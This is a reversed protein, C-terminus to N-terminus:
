RRRRRRLGRGRADHRLGLEKSRARWSRLCGVCLVVSLILDVIIVLALRQMLEVAWSHVFVGYYANTFDYWVYMGFGGVSHRIQPIPDSGCIADVDSMNFDPEEIASRAGDDCALWMGQAYRYFGWSLFRESRIQGKAFMPLYETVNTSHDAIMNTLLRPPLFGGFMFAHAFTEYEYGSMSLGGSLDPFASPGYNAYDGLIDREVPPYEPQALGLASFVEDTLLEIWAAETRPKGSAALAMAGAVTLHWPGYQFSEGPSFPFTDGALQRVCTDWDPQTSREDSPPRACGGTFGWGEPDDRAFGATFGLLHELTVKSGNGATPWFDFYDSPKADLSLIGRAILRYICTAAIHKSESAIQYRTEFDIKGNVKEWRRGSKDGIILGGHHEASDFASEVETWDDTALAQVIKGQLAIRHENGPLIKEPDL